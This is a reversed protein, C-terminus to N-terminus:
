GDLGTAVAIAGAATGIALGAGYLLAGGIVALCLIGGKVNHIEESNDKSESLYVLSNETIGLDQIQIRPM